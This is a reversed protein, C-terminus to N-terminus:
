FAVPLSEKECVGVALITMDDRIVGGGARIAMQLVNTAMDSLSMGVLGSVYSEFLEMNDYFLDMVGDSALLVIDESHLFITERYGDVRPNIGLSLRDAAFERVKKNRILFSAASGNKYFTCEGTYQNLEMLDLSVSREGGYQVYLLEDCARICSKVSLGSEIHKEMLTLVNESDRCADTGSGMGDAIAAIYTGEGFERMLYNDGSIEEGEKTVKAFGGYIQFRTEEEFCLSTWEDRVYTYGDAVPLLSLRTIESLLQAIDEVDFYTKEQARVVMGIETYGNRNEGRYYEKVFIGSALLEKCIKKEQKKASLSDSFRTQAIRTLQRSTDMVFGSFAVRQDDIQRRAFLDARSVAPGDAEQEGPLYIEAIDKLLNAYGIMRSKTFETLVGKEEM